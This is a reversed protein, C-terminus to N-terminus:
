RTEATFARQWEHGKLVFTKAVLPDAPQIDKVILLMGLKGDKLVKIRRAVQVGAYNEQNLPRIEM